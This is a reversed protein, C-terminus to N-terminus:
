QKTLMGDQYVRVEPKQDPRGGFSFTIRKGEQTILPECYGFRDTITAKGKAPITLMRFEACGRPDSLEQILVADANALNKFVTHFNVSGFVDDQTRYLRQGGLLVLWNTEGIEYDDVRVLKLVGAKTIFRELVTSRIRYRRQPNIHPSLFILLIFAFGIRWTMKEKFKIRLM